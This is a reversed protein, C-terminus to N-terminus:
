GKDRNANIDETCYFHFGHIQGIAGILKVQDIKVPVFVHEKCVPYILLTEKM